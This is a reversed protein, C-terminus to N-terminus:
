EVSQVHRSMCQSHETNCTGLMTDRARSCVHWVVACFVGAGAAARGQVGGGVKVLDGDMGKRVVRAERRFEGVLAADSLGPRCWLPQPQLPSDGGARLLQLAATCMCSMQKDTHQCVIYPPTGSAQAPLLTFCSMCFGWNIHM